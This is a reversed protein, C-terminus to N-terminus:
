PRHYHNGGHATDDTADAENASPLVGHHNNQAALKAETPHEAPFDRMKPDMDLPGKLHPSPLIEGLLSKDTVPSWTVLNKTLSIVEQLSSVHTLYEDETAASCCRLSFCPSTCM